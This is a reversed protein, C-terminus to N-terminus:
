YSGPHKYVEIAMAQKGTKWLKMVKEGTSGAMALFYNASYFWVNWREEETLSKVLAKHFEETESLAIACKAEAIALSEGLKYSAAKKLHAKVVKNLEKKFAKEEFNSDFYSM